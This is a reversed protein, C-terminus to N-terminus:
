SHSKWVLNRVRTILGQRDKKIPAQSPTPNVKVRSAGPPPPPLWPQPFTVKGSTKNVSGPPPPTTSTTRTSATTGSTWNGTTTFSGTARVTYVDETETKSIDEDTTVSPERLKGQKRLSRLSGM